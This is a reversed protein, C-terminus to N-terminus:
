RLHTCACTILSETYNLVTCGDTTWNRTTVNFYKCQPIETTHNALGDYQLIFIIPECPDANTIPYLESFM